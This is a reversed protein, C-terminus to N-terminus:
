NTCARVSFFAVFPQVGFVKQAPTTNLTPPETMCVVDGESANLTDVLTVNPDIHTDEIKTVSFAKTNM